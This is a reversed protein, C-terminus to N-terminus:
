MICLLLIIKSYLSHIGLIDDYGIDQPQPGKYYPNMISNSEASHGLGLSHGMEHIAVSYFDVGEIFDGLKIM